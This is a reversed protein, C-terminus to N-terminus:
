VHVCVSTSVRVFFFFESIGDSKLFHTPSLVKWYTHKHAHSCICISVTYVYVYVDVSCLFRRDRINFIRVWYIYCIKFTYIYFTIFKLLLMMNCCKWFTTFCGNFLITCLVFFEIEIKLKSLMKVSFNIFFIIKFILKFIDTTFNTITEKLDEGM